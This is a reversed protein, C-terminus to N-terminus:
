EEPSPMGRDKPMMVDLFILDPRMERAMALGQEGDTATLIEYGRSSLRQEFIYRNAPNDDVVLIQAPNNM